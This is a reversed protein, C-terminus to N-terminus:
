LSCCAYKSVANRTQGMVSGATLTLITRIPVGASNLMRAVWSNCTNTMYYRGKGEYFLSQGYLGSDTKLVNGPDNRRFSNSIANVLKEMGDSSIKVEITESNTFYQQPPSPLAVIHMVSETPWFIARITLGSTIEKAQYFGKDGWGFEYYQAGVFDNELFGLQRGLAQKPVVIGTHWGHSVVYIKREDEKSAPLHQWDQFAANCSCIIVSLLITLFRM